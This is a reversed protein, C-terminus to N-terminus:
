EKRLSDVPNKHATKLAQVSVTCLAILMAVVGSLLFNFYNINIRYSFGQLWKQMAWWAVPWAILNAFLVLPVFDKYLLLVIQGSSAGLARRIAMEKTRKQATLASLGYLGLCAILIALGMFLNIIRGMRRDDKYQSELVDSVFSYEFPYGPSLEQWTQKLANLTEELNVPKVRVILSSVKSPWCMILLPQIGQHLSAFHFDKVVGIVPEKFRGGGYYELEKGIAEDPTHWGLKKVATENIIFAASTDTAYERSFGRGAVMPLQLTNLYDYDVMAVSMLRTENKATAPLKVDSGDLEEGVLNLTAAASVVAPMKLFQQRLTGTNIKWKPDKVTINLLYEKNYGLPKNSMYSLQQFAILSCVILIISIAFQFIVAGQRFKFGKRRESANGQLAEVPLFRSLYLAPYGGALTGFFLTGMLYWFVNGHIFIAQLKFIKDTLFNFLPLCAMSLLLALLLAIFVIVYSEVMFQAAVQARYAGIAKRIGIERLRLNYQATVLTVYNIGALLLIILSTFSFIIVTSINGNSEMEAAMDSYLHIDTLRQLHLTVQEVDKPDRYRSIILPLRSDLAAANADPRLLVYTYLGSIYWNKMWGLTELAAMGDFHFHTNLPPDKIVGTVQYDKRNGITIIKGVANEDGFYRKAASKTLVMTQPARLAEAPNGALFEYDFMRFVNTDALAITERYFRKDGEGVLVNRRLLIRVFEQVQPYEDRMAPGLMGSTTALQQEAGSFHQHQVVRYIQAAKRHYRDYSLENRVLLFILTCTSIGIALGAVNLFFFQKHRRLNRGAVKLYNMWM